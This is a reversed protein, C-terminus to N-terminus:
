LISMEYNEILMTDETYKYFTLKHFCFMYNYRHSLADNLQIKTNRQFFM